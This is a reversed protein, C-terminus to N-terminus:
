ILVGIRPPIVCAWGSEPHAPFRLGDTNESSPRDPDHAGASRPRTDEEDFRWAALFYQALRDPVEEARAPEPVIRGEVDDWFRDATRMVKRAVLGFLGTHPSRHGCKPSATPGPDPIDHDTPSASTRQEKGVM